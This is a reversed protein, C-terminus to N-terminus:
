RWYPRRGSWVAEMSFQDPHGPGRSSRPRLFFRYLAIGAVFGGVHAWWAVGGALHSASVVSAGGFLQMLYWVGLYFIAPMTFFLPYFFIPFMVIVQAYPFMVFYAGMVGAIAGSAGVTPLTSDPNFWAHMFAAALGCCLYFLIFRVPGMRDEVNDGFLWLAWMNGIIHAWGGHLFMSTLFPWFSDSYGVWRAWEPHTHRMPVLGFYYIFREQAWEPLSLEFMFVLANCIILLWVGIPPYRSPISDAIPFMVILFGSLIVSDIQWAGACRDRRQEM